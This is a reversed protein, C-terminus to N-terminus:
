DQIPILKCEKPINNKEYLMLDNGFYAIHKKWNAHTIKFDECEYHKFYSDLILEGNWDRYIKFRLVEDQISVLEIWHGGDCGGKWMATLPVNKPKEPEKCPQNFFWKYFVLGIVVLFVLTLPILMKKTKM